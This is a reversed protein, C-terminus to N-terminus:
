PCGAPNTNEREAGSSDSGWSGVAPCDLDVGRFLYFFGDAPSPIESDIFSTDTRDADDNNRCAGYEGAALRSLDGRSIDYVEALPEANWVLEERSGAAFVVGTIAAPRGGRPNAVACDDADDLGDGDWDAACADGRGDGDADEQGPNAVLPCNDPLQTIGDGDVDAPSILWSSSVLNSNGILTKAIIEHIGDGNIDAQWLEGLEDGAQRGYIIWDEDENDAGLDAALGPGGLFVYIEGMRTADEAPGDAKTASCVLDDIGDGSVDKVGAIGCLFLDAADAGWVTTDSEVGLDVEPAYTPYPEHVRAEGTEPASNTRGDGRAVGVVLEAHGDSDVDGVAIGDGAADSSDPGYLLMDPADFRLDIEAPWLSRGWFVYIDGAGSRSDGPGDGGSAQLVLDETGDDNVDGTGVDGLGDFQSAGYITLDREDALDVTAPWITRGFLVYVRGVREFNGDGDPARFAPMILDEIGDGDIDGSALDGASLGIGALEGYVIVGPDSLLDIETPWTTRGFLIHVQGASSRTNDPGDAFKAGILLDAIGDGDVDGCALGDGSKDVEEQGCIKVDADVAADRSGAWRGRRGFIVYTEGARFRSNAPGHGEYASVIWDDIRDGNIDCAVAFSGFLDGVRAGDWRIADSDVALDVVVSPQSFAVAGPFLWLGALVVLVVGQRWSWCCAGTARRRHAPTGLPRKGCALARAGVRGQGM